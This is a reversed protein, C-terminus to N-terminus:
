GLCLSGAVQSIVHAAGLPTDPVPQAPPPEGAELEPALERDSRIEGIECAKRGPKHNLDVTLKM